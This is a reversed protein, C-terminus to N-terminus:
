KGDFIISYKAVPPMTVQKLSGQIGQSYSGYEVKLHIPFMFGIMAIGLLYEFKLAKKMLYYEGQINKIKLESM